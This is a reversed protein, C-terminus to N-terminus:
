EIEQNLVIKKNTINLLQDQCLSILTASRFFFSIPTGQTNSFRINAVGDFISLMHCGAFKECLCTLIM